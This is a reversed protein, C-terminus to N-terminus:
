TPDLEIDGAVLHAFIDVGIELLPIQAIQDTAGAGQELGLSAFQANGAIADAQQALTQTRQWFLEVAQGVDLLTVALTVQIQDHVLFRTGGKHGPALQHLRNTGVHHVIAVQFHFRRHHVRNRTASRGLWEGRVVISEIHREVQANRRLQIQLTQHDTTELLHELNVTVETVFAQAGAVIRFERHHFEVLGVCVVLAHHIEGFTHDTM